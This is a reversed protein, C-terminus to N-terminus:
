LACVAVNKNEKGLKMLKIGYIFVQLPFIITRKRNMLKNKLYCKKWFKNSSGKEM